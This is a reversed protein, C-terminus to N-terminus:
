MRGGHLKWAGEVKWPISPLYWPSPLFAVGCRNWLYDAFQIHYLVLPPPTIFKTANPPIQLYPPMSAAHFSLLNDGADTLMLRWWGDPPLVDEMLTAEDNLIPYPVCEEKEQDRFGSAFIRQNYLMYESLSLAPPLCWKFAGCRRGLILFWWSHFDILFYFNLFTCWGVLLTRWLFYFFRVNMCKVM